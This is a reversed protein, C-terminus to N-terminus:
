GGREREADERHLVGVFKGDPTTILITDTAKERLRELVTELPMNPRITAPGSEMLQEVTAHPDAECRESPLIGLVIEEANVVVAFPQEATAPNEWVTACQDTLQGTAIDRRALDGACPLPVEKSETPFGSAAWDAKGAAYDFVQTFGLSELRWAARPSLDCQADYCYVIVPRDRRLEATTDENIEQLPLPRAEPLHEREYEQAPLVEILQAGEIMLKRIEEKNINTPM